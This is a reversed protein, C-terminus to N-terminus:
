VLLTQPLPLATVLLACYKTPNYRVIFLRIVLTHFIDWKSLPLKKRTLRRVEQGITNNWRELYTTPGSEKGAKQHRFRHNPTANLL